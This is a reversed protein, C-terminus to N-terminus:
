PSLWQGRRVGYLRVAVDDLPVVELWLHLSRYPEPEGNAYLEVVLQYLGQGLDPITITEEHREGSALTVRLTAVDLPPVAASARPPGDLADSYRLITAVIRYDMISAEQNRVGVIVDAGEGIPLVSPYGAARGEDNLLYLETFPGARTANGWPDDGAGIVLVIAVTALMGRSRAPSWPRTLVDLAVQASPRLTPDRRWLRQLAVFSLSTTVLVLASIMPLARLGWPLADLALAILPVLVISIGCSLALRDLWGTVVSSDAQSGRRQVRPFLAAVLAYGPLFLVLLFGLALRPLPSPVLLTLPMVLALAITAYLDNPPRLLLSRTPM